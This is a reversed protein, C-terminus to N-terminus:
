GNKKNINVGEALEELGEIKKKEIFAKKSLFAMYSDVHKDIEKYKYVDKITTKLMKEGSFTKEIDLATAKKSRKYFEVWHYAKFGNKEAEAEYKEKVNIKFARAESEPMAETVTYGGESSAVEKEPFIVFRIDGKTGSWVEEITFPTTDSKSTDSKLSQVALAENHELMIPERLGRVIM